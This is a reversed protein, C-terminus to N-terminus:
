EDVGGGDSGVGHADLISQQAARVGVDVGYAYGIMMACFNSMGVIIFVMFTQRTNM